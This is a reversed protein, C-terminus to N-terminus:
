APPASGVSRAIPRIYAIRDEGPGEHDPVAPLGYRNETGPGSRPNFGLAAFFASAPPDGPWALLSVITAGRTAAEAAFAEVLRRGIGHRRRNPDVAVLHVVGEDPRDQSVFGLLVAVPRGGPEVEAVFSTSGAHRFWSRGALHAVRRGGFWEDIVRAIPQQDSENPHRLTVLSGDAHAGSPETM